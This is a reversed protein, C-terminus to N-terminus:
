INSFTDTAFDSEDAAAHDVVDFDRVREVIQTDGVADDHPRLIDTRKVWLADDNQGAAALSLRHRGERANGHVTVAENGDIFVVGHNKGRANDGSVFLRNAAHQVM